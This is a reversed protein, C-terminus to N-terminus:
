KLAHLEKKLNPDSLIVFLEPFYTKCHDMLKKWYVEGLASPIVEFKKLLSSYDRLFKQRDKKPQTEKFFGYFCFFLEAASILIKKDKSNELELNSFMLLPTLSELIARGKRCGSNMRLYALVNCYISKYNPCKLLQKSFETFLSKINEQSTDSHHLFKILAYVKKSMEVIQKEFGSFDKLDEIKKFIEDFATFAAIVTYKEALTKFLKVANQQIDKKVEENEIYNLKNQFQSGFALIEARIAWLENEESFNQRNEFKEMKKIAEQLDKVDIRSELLIRMLVFPTQSIHNFFAKEITQEATENSDTFRLINQVIGKELLGNVGSENFECYHGLKIPQRPGYDWLLEEDKAVQDITVFLSSVNNGEVSSIVVCNPKGQNFLGGLSRKWRADTEKLVYSNDRELDLFHDREGYYGTVVTYPPIDEGAFVGFQKIKVQEAVYISPAKGQKYLQIADKIKDYLPENKLEYQTRWIHYLSESSFIDRDVLQVGTLKKFYNGDKKEIQGTDKNFYHFYIQDQAPVQKLDLLMEPTRGDVDKMQALNEFVPLKKIFSIVKEDGGLLAHHLVNWNRHDVSLWDVADKQEQLYKLADISKKITALIIPSLLLVSGRHNLDISKLNKNIWTIKTSNLNNYVIAYHVFLSKNEKCDNDYKDKRFQYDIFTDLGITM